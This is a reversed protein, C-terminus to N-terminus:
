VSTSVAHVVWGSVLLSSRPRRKLCSVSPNGTLRLMAKTHQLDQCLLVWTLMNSRVGARLSVAVCRCLSVAVCRCLSVAVCRCLWVDVCGCLWARVWLVREYWHEYHQFLLRTTQVALGKRRFLTTFSSRVCCSPLVRFEFEFASHVPLKVHEGIAPCLSIMRSRASM